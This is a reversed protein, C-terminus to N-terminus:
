ISSPPVNDSGWPVERLVIDDFWYNVSNVTTSLKFNLLNSSTPAAAPSSFSFSFDNWQTTLSMAGAGFVSYDSGTTYLSSSALSVAKDAKARFTLLYRTNQKTFIAAPSFLFKTSTGATTVALKATGADWSLTVDGGGAAQATWGTVDSTFTGNTLVSPTADSPAANNFAVANSYEALVIDDFSITGTWAVPVMFIMYFGLAGPDALCTVTSHFTQWGTTIDPTDDSFMYYQEPVAQRGVCVAQLTAAVSAKARFSLDYTYGLKWAGAPLARQFAHFTGAQTVIVDAWGGANWSGSAAGGTYVEVTWSDLSAAFTGSIISASNPPSNDYVPAPSSKQAPVIDNTSWLQVDDVTIVGTYASPIGLNVVWGSTNSETMVSGTTEVWQFSTTLTLPLAACPLNGTFGNTVSITQLAVTVSAKIRFRVRLTEGIVPSVEPSFAPSKLLCSTGSNVITYVLAGDAWGTGISTGGTMSYTWYASDVPFSMYKLQTTLVGLPIIEPTPM